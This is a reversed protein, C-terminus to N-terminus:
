ASDATFIRAIAFSFSSTAISFSQATSSFQSIALSHSADAAHRRIAASLTTHVFCFYFIAAHLSIFIFLIAHRQRFDIHRRRLYIHRQCPPPL